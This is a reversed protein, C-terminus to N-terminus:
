EFIKDQIELPLKDIYKFMNNYTNLISLYNYPKSYKVIFEIELYELLVNEFTYSPSWNHSCGLSNCCYCANEELNLFRPKLGYQLRYFFALIKPDYLKKESLLGINKFYSNKNNLRNVINNYIIEYSKFPYDIPIKLTLLLRNNTDKFDILTRNNNNTDCEYETLFLNNFFNQVNENYKHYNDKDVFIRIERRLRKLYIPTM